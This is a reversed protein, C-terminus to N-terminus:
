KEIYMGNKNKLLDIKYHLDKKEREWIKKKMYHYFLSAAATIISGIATSIEPPLTM